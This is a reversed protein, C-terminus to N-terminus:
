PGLLRGSEVAAMVLQLVRPALGFRKLRGPDRQPDTAGALPHGHAVHRPLGVPPVREQGREFLEVVLERHEVPVATVDATVSVLDPDLDDTQGHEALVLPLGLILQARPCGGQVQVGVHQASRPQNATM